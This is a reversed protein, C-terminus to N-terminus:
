GHGPEPLDRWRRRIRTGVAVALDPRHRIAPRQPLPVRGRYAQRAGGPVRVRGGRGSHGRRAGAAPRPLDGQCIENLTVLDPIEAHIVTAAEATSRGTYCAAIGSNCLNLQLVRVPAVPVGDAPTPAGSPTRLRTRSPLARRPDGGSTCGSHSAALPLDLVAAWRRQYRRSPLRNPAIPRRRHVRRSSRGSLRRGRGVTRPPAPELRARRGIVATASEVLTFCLDWGELMGSPGASGVDACGLWRDDDGCRGRAPCRLRKLSVEASKGDHRATDRHCTHHSREALRSHHHVALMRDGRGRCRDARRIRHAAVAASATTEPQVEACGAFGPGTGVIEDAAALLLRAGLLPSARLEATGPVAEFGAESRCPALRPM